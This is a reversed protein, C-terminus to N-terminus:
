QFTVTLPTVGLANLEDLRRTGGLPLGFEVLPEIRLLSVTEPTAALFTNPAGPKPVLTYVAVHVGEPVVWTIFGVGSVVRGKSDRADHKQFFITIEPRIQEPSTPRALRPESAAKRQGGESVTVVPKTHAHTMQAALVTLACALVMIRNTMVTELQYFSSNPWISEVAPDTGNGVM